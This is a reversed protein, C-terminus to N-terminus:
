FINGKIDRLFWIEWGVKVKKIKYRYIQVLDECKEM